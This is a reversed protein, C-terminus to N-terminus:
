LTEGYFAMRSTSFNFNLIKNIRKMKRNLRKM